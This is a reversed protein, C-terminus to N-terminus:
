LMQKRLPVEDNDDDVDGDNQIHNMIENKDYRCMVMMKRSSSKSLM